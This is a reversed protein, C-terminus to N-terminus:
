VLVVALIVEYVAAVLLVLITPVYMLAMQKVGALYGRGLGGYGLRRHFFVARGHLWVGVMGLIYGEGELVLLIVLLLGSALDMGQIPAFIIGWLVARYFAILWGSCPVILSPLTITVFTGLVLNIVFTLIFARLAQQTIYAEGVTSLAGGEGLSQEVGEWVELQIDRNLIVIIIGVVLSAYYTIHAALYARWHDRILTLSRGLIGKRSPETSGEKHM